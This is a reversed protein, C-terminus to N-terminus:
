ETREVTRRARQVDSSLLKPIGGKMADAWAVTAQPDGKAWARLVRRVAKRVSPDEDRLTLTLVAHVADSLPAEVFRIKREGMRERLAAAAPGELAVPLWALAASTIARRAAPRLDRRYHRLLHEFGMGSSLSGPGLLLWGLADATMPDDVHELWRLGLHYAGEADDPLCAAALGIAVLGDEYASMFLRHLAFEDNDLTPQEELWAASCVRAIEGDPVGRQGRLVSLKRKRATKNDVLTELTESIFSEDM